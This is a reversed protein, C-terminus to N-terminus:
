VLESSTLTIDISLGKGNEITKIELKGSKTFGTKRDILYRGSVKDENSSLLVLVEADSIRDITYTFDGEINQVNQKAVWSDGVKVPKIPLPIFLTNLDISKSTLDSKNQGFEITKVQALSDLSMVIKKALVSELENRLEQPLNNNDQQSDYKIETGLVSTGFQIRQFDIAYKNEVEDANSVRMKLDGIFHTNLPIMMGEPKLNVEMKLNIKDGVQPKLRLLIEGKETNQISFDVPSSEADKNSFPNKCSMFMLVVAIFLSYKM